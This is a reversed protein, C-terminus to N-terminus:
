IRNILNFCKRCYLKGKKIYGVGLSRGCNQCHFYATDPEKNKIIAFSKISKKLIKVPIVQNDSDKIKSKM